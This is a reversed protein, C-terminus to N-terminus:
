KILKEIEIPTKGKFRNYKIWRNTKWVLIDYGLEDLTREDDTTSYSDCSWKTLKLDDPINVRIVVNSAQVTNSILRYESIKDKGLVGGNWIYRYRYRIIIV